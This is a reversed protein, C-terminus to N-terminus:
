PTDPQPPRLKVGASRLGSADPFGRHSAAGSTRLLLRSDARSQDRLHLRLGLLLSFYIFPVKDFDFARDFDHESPCPSSPSSSLCPAPPRVPLTSDRLRVSRCTSRTPSIRPRSRRPSCAPLRLPQLRHSRAPGPDAAGSCGAVRTWVASVPSRGALTPAGARPLPLSRHKQAIPRGEMTSLVSASLGAPVHPRGLPCASPPVRAPAPGRPRPQRRRM